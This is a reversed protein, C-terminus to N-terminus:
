PGKIERKGHEQPEKAGDGHEHARQDEGNEEMEQVGRGVELCSQM